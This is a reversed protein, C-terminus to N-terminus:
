FSLFYKSTEPIYETLMHAAADQVVSSIRAGGVSRQYVDSVSQMCACQHVIGADAIISVDLSKIWDALESM